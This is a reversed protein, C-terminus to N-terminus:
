CGRKRTTTRVSLPFRGPGFWSTHTESVRGLFDLLHRCDGLFQVLLDVVDDCLDLVQAFADFVGAVLDFRHLGFEGLLPRDDFGHGVVLPDVDLGDEGFV